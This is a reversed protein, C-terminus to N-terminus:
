ETNLMTGGTVVVKFSIEDAEEIIRGVYLAECLQWLRETERDLVDIGRHVQTRIIWVEHRYVIVTSM